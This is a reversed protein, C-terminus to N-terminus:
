KSVRPAPAAPPAKPADAPPIAQAPTDTKVMVQVKARGRLKELLDRIQDYTLFRVIQPRAAELTIPEELRKDEVRLVAWGGETQFPGVLAGKQADKLAVAYAPPMVDVTFYGLDGGNFRTAPDTSREMALADFSAGAALLKKVAEADAQSGVLIQRARIEESRKSLKQQEAYLGRIANENVAKEVVNEVLMDGLIRERAAALRRQAVPDKDLKQKLAEAALLKQDIVEDLRQRFLDSGIDLPEGESILGQAVAERKVDSAWVTHGDVRAVATDGPEPPREDAKNRGCAAVLLSLVALATLASLRSKAKNM